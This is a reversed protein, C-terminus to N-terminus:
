ATGRSQRMTSVGDDTCFGALSRKLCLLGLLHGEPGVVALRRRGTRVMAEQTAQLPVDVAVTRLELSGLAAAPAATDADDTLDDRDLTSVLIGDRVLLLLHIKTRTAFVARAEGVTLEAPHVAPRRLMADGVTADQGTM